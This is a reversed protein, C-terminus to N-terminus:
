AHLREEAQAQELHAVFRDLTERRMYTRSGVIVTRFHEPYKRRYTYFTHESIRLLKRVEAKSMLDHETM